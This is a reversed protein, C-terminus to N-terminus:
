KNIEEELEKFLKLKDKIGTSGFGRSGRETTSLSQVVKVEVKTVPLIIMQAIRMGKEIEVEEDGFNVLMISVEGRYDPDFTGAATHVNMNKVIGSRDRILGVHGAPIKIIIGTRIAKQEMPKLGINENAKLDLGVDSDLMYEPTSADKAIKKVELFFKTNQKNDKKLIKEKTLIKKTKKIM